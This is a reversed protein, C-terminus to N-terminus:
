HEKWLLVKNAIRKTTLHNKTHNFIYDNIWEYNPHVEYKRAYKNTERLVEKPFDFM